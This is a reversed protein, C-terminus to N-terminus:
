FYARKITIKYPLYVLSVSKQFDTRRKTCTDEEEYPM